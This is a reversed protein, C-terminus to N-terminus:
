QTDKKVVRLPEQAEEETKKVFEIATGLSVPAAYLTFKSHEDDWSGLEFLVFDMPHKAIETERNNVIEAWWRLIEGKSRCFMPPKWTSVGTDYIGFIKMLM